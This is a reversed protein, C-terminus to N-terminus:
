FTHIIFFYKKLRNPLIGQTSNLKKKILSYNTMPNKLKISIFWQEALYRLFRKLFSRKAKTLNQTHPLRKRYHQYCIVINDM